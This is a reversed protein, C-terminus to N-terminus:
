RYNQQSKINYTNFYTRELKKVTHYSNVVTIFNLVLVETSGPNEEPFSERSGNKSVLFGGKSPRFQHNFQICLNEFVLELTPSPAFDARGWEIYVIYYFCRM